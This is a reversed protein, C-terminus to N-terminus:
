FRIIGYSIGVGIQPEIKGNTLNIGGGVFPGISWRKTKQKPLTFGAIENYQVYPNNSVVSINNKKDLAITFDVFVKDSDIKMELTDPHYSIQGSLIRYQNSYDFHETIGQVMDSSKIIYCTDHVENTITTTIHTATVPKSKLKSIEDYLDSNLLKLDKINAEYALTTAVLRDYRDKYHHISDNTVAIYSNYEHRYDSCKNIACTGIILLLTIILIYIFDKKM